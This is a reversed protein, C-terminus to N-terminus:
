GGSHAGRYSRSSSVSFLVRFRCLQGDHGPKDRGDVDIHWTSRNPFQARFAVQGDFTARSPLAHIAPVLGAMVHFPWLSIQASRLTM